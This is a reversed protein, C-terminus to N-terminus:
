RTTAARIVRQEFRVGATTVIETRLSVVSGGPLRPLEFAAGHAVPKAPRWTAGDDTSYWLRVERAHVAPAPVGPLGPQSLVRVGVRRGALTTLGPVTPKGSLDLDFDAVPLPLVSVSGDASRASDFEWASSTRSGLPTVAGADTEAELRYRGPDATLPLSASFGTREARLEAGGELQYLRFRNTATPGADTRETMGGHREGDTLATVSVNLADLARYVPPNWLGGITAFQPGAYWHVEAREGPRYVRGHDSINFQHQPRPYSWWTNTQLSAGPTVYETRETRGVPVPALGAVLSFHTRVAVDGPPYHAEVRALHRQDAVSHVAGLPRPFDGTATRNLDYSFATYPTSVVRLVGASGLDADRGDVVVIPLMGQPSYLSGFTGPRDNRIVLAAAGAATARTRLDGLPEGRRVVAMRGTLDGATAFEAATGAGVDHVPYTGSRPLVAPDIAVARHEAPRRGGGYLRVRRDVLHTSVSTEFRGVTVPQQQRSLLLPQEQLEATWFMLDDGTGATRRFFVEASHTETSVKTVTDAVPEADRADLVVTADESLDVEPDILVASGTRTDDDGQASLRTLVLYHGKPKRIVAVGNQDLNTASDRTRTLDDVDYVDIVSWAAPRGDNVIGRVTLDYMEPEDVFGVPTTLREGTGAVTATLYGSYPGPTTRTPDVTVTVAAHGGPPVIVSAASLSGTALDLGLDLTVPQDGDNRWGATGSAPGAQPYRLLGLDLDEDDPRLKTSLAHPLDIRGAGAAVPLAGGARAATGALVAKVEAPTMAPYRQLLLAAAGAVAPTAMSTGSAATYSADVPSGMSTGAARASVIGVGPAAVDPKLAGDGFRPGRSSFTTVADTGDVAAVTLAADATGPTGITEPGPGQNGAAVVFLTGTASLRNVAASLPDTGDTPPGSLSMSVVDAGQAVAWEMGALVWGTQGNGSDDMVKGVLLDAASAVGKRLGDNGAGSGGVIGAVHTGHGHGDTVAGKGTFDVAASVRGALDPHDADVGTDLVAVRVGSGDAGSAWAQPAGIQDLNEDWVVHVKRDLWVRGTGAALAPGTDAKAVSATAMRATPLVRDVRVGAPTAAGDVLLPIVDSHADDLGEAVLLRVDFLAPDLRRPVLTAVSAPIVYLHEGVATVSAPHTTAAPEAAYRGSGDRTVRVKDGTLLTVTWEAVAPVVAPVAAPVAAPMAAAPGPLLTALLTLPLAIRIHKMVM